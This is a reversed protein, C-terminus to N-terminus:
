QLIVSYEELMKEPTLHKWDSYDEPTMNCLSPDYSGHVTIGHAAAYARLYEEVKVGGATDATKAYYAYTKPYWCPLYFEVEIGLDQMHAILKEFESVAQRNDELVTTPLAYLFLESEDGQLVMSDIKEVTWYANLNMTGRGNPLLKQFNEPTDNDVIRISENERNPLGREELADLGSQFYAFSVLEKLKEFDSNQGSAALEPNTAGDLVLQREYANYNAISTHHTSSADERFIWQDVGLVIRSPIKKEYELIGMTAYLDGLYATSTSANYLGEDPFPIYRTHSSGIVVTQPTEKLYQIGLELRLGEDFDGPSQVINGQALKEALEFTVENHFINAPDMYYNFGIVVAYVVAAFVAAKLLFQKM